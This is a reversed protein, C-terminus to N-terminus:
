TNLLDGGSSTSVIGVGANEFTRGIFSKVNTFICFRNGRGCCSSRLETYSEDCQRDKNAM